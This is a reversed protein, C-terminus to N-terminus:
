PIRNELQAFTEYQVDHIQEPFSKRPSIEGGPLPAAPKGATSAPMAIQYFSATM